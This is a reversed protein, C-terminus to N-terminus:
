SAVDAVAVGTSVREGDQRVAWVDIEVALRGTESTRVDRIRGACRVTDGPHVLGTHRISLRRLWGREGIWGAVMRAVLATRHHGSQVVDRYGAREVAHTRDYHLRIWNEQYGAWRVFDALTLPGIEVEPIEAGAVPSMASRTPM